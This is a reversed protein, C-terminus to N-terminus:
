RMGSGHITVFVEGADETVEESDEMVEGADEMVEGADEMVEKEAAKEGRNEGTKLSAAKSEAESGTGAVAEIEELCYEMVDAMAECDFEDALISVCEWEKQKRKRENRLDKLRKFVKYGQAVNYNAEEIERLTQEIEDDIEDLDIQLNQMYQGANAYFELQMRAFERWNNDKGDFITERRTNEMNQDEERGNSAYKQNGGVGVSANSAYKQNDGVGVSANSAYKQNDGAEVSANSAYKQNDGVKERGNGAYKQIYGREASGDYGEEHTDEGACPQQSQAIEPQTKEPLM